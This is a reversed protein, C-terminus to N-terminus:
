LARRRRGSAGRPRLGRLGGARADPPRDAERRGHVPRPRPLRRLAGARRRARLRVARAVRHRLQSPGQVGLRAGARAPRAAHGRRGAAAHGVRLRHGDGRRRPALEGRRHRDGPEAGRRAPQRGRLEGGRPDARGLRDAGRHVPRPLHRRRAPRTG